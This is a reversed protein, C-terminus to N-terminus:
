YASDKWTCDLLFLPIRYNAEGCCFVRSHLSTSAPSLPSTWPVAQKLHATYAYSGICIFVRRFVAPLPPLGSHWLPSCSLFIFSFHSLEITRVVHSYWSVEHVKPESTKQTVPFTHRYTQHVFLQFSPLHIIYSTQHIIVSPQPNIFETTERHRYIPM